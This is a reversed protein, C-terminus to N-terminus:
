LFNAVKESYEWLKLAVDEDYAHAAYGSQTGKTAGEIYPVSVSVNELYKGGKGELEKAVSAWVTTAAGQTPSKFKWIPSPNGHEDFVGFNIYDATPTTRQIGTAIVGPHVAWSHIGKTGFKRELEVTFLINAAKSQGYATWGNYGRKTFHLDDLDVTVSIHINSSVNIIRSNFEATSSKLLLPLLKLTFCFHGLHNVGFQYEHGDKTVQYPTNMVGANNVLVHLRQSRSIFDEAATKVSELSDLEIKLIELKGHNPYRATIDAIVKKTKEIDRVALFVTAGKSAFAAVTDIGIGSSGGTVIVTKGELTFDPGEKNLVDECSPYEEPSFLPVKPLLDYMPIHAM